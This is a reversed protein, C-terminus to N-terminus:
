DMPLIFGFDQGGYSMFYGRIWIRISDKNGESVQHAPNGSNGDRVADSEDFTRMSLGVVKKKWFELM